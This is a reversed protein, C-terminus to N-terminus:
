CCLGLSMLVTLLQVGTVWGGRDQAEGLLLFLVCPPSFFWLSCLPPCLSPFLLVDVAMLSILSYPLSALVPPVAVGAHRPRRKCFTAPQRCGELGHVDLCPVRPLLPQDRGPCASSVLAGTPLDGRARRGQAGGPSPGGAAPVCVPSWTNAKWEALRVIVM